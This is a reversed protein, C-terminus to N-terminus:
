GYHYTLCVRDLNFWMVKFTWQPFGKDAYTEHWNFVGQLDVALKMIGRLSVEKNHSAGWSRERVERRYEKVPLPDFRGGGGTAIQMELITRNPLYKGKVRVKGASPVRLITALDLDFFIDGKANFSAVKVWRLVVPIEFLAEM